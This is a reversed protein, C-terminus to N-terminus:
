PTQPVDADSTQATPSVPVIRWKSPDVQVAPVELPVVLKRPPIQPLEGVSM